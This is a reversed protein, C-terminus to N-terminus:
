EALGNEECYLKTLELAVDRDNRQVRADNGM